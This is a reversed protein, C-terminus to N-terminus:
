EEPVSEIDKLGHSRDYEDFKQRRFSDNTRLKKRFSKSLNIPGTRFSQLFTQSRHLSHVKLGTEEVQADRARKGEAVKRNSNNRIFMKPRRIKGKSTLGKSSTSPSPSSPAGVSSSSDGYHMRPPGRRISRRPSQLGKNRILKSSSGSSILKKQQKQQQQQQQQQTLGMGDSGVGVGAEAGNGGGALGNDMVGEEVNAGESVGEEAGEGGEGVGAIGASGAVRRSALDARLPSILPERRRVKPRKPYNNIFSRYHENEQKRRQARRSREEEWVACLQKKKSEAEKDFRKRREVQEDVRSRYWRKRAAANRKEKLDGKNIPKKFQPGEKSWLDKLREKNEERLSTEVISKANRRKILLMKRRKTGIKRFEEEKAMDWAIPEEDVDFEEGDMYDNLDPM